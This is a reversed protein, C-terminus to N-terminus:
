GVITGKNRALGEGLLIEHLYKGEVQVLSYYRTSKGRGPAFAKRTQIVFPKRSLRGKVLDGARAGARTVEDLTVGFYEYQQRVRDGASLDLEPCDVFYLRVYFKEKGCQVLFSDGDNYKSPLYQCGELKQWAKKEAAQSTLSCFALLVGICAEKLPGGQAWHVGPYVASGTSRPHFFLLRGFAAELPSGSDLPPLILPEPPLGNDSL